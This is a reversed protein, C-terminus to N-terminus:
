LSDMGKRAPAYTPAMTLAAAYAARAGAKDGNGALIRALLTEVRFAPAADSKKGHDLYARMATIAEASQGADNLALAADIVDAGTTHDLTIARRAASAAKASDHHRAYFNALDAWAGPAQQVTTAAVFEREAAVLDGNKEAALARLRHATEPLTAEIQSALSLAKSIGGGVLAPASIYYEGLDNAAAPNRVDLRQATQFATRVQGALRLGSFPGASQAQMGFARGAWDQASSNEALGDSLAQRCQAAAETGHEESLYVRCLLLHAQANSTNTKLAGQLLTTAEAARGSLLAQEAMHLDQAAAGASILGSCLALWKYVQSLVRKSTSRM